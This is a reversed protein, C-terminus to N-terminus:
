SQNSTGSKSGDESKKLSNSGERTSGSEVNKAQVLELLRKGLEGSGEIKDMKTQFYEADRQMRRENAHTVHKLFLSYKGNSGLRRGCM